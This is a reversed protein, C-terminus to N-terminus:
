SKCAETFKAEIFNMIMTRKEEDNPAERLEHLIQQIISSLEQNATSFRLQEMLTNVRTDHINVEEELLMPVQANKAARPSRTGRLIDLLIRFEGEVLESSLLSDIHDRCFVAFDAVCNGLLHQNRELERCANKDENVAQRVVPAVGGVAGAAISSLVQAFNVGFLAGLGAVAAAAPGVGVLLGVGAVGGVVGWPSWGPPDGRVERRETRRQSSSLEAEIM